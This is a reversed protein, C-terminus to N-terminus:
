VEGGIMQCTFDSIDDCGIWPSITTTTDSRRLGHVPSMKGGDQNEVMRDTIRRAIRELDRITHNKRPTVDLLLSGLAFFEFSPLPLSNKIPDDDCGNKTPDKKNSLEL